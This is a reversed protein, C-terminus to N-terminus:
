ATRPRFWARAPGLAMDTARRADAWAEPEARRLLTTFVAGAVLCGGFVGLLRPLGVVTAGWTALWAGVGAVLAEMGLRALASVAQGTAMGCMRLSLHLGVAAAVSKVGTVALAIGVVGWRSGALIAALYFPVVAATLRLGVGPRGMLNFVVACPSTVSRLATFLVFVRVLPVADFWKPGYLVHVVDPAYVFLLTLLPLSIAGVFRLLRLYAAPLRAPDRNLTSLAPMAVDTAVATVHRNALNATQWAVNYTGLPGTGLTRGILLTDGENAVLNLLSSGDVRLSYGLIERMSGRLRTARPRWGAAFSVWVLRVPEQVVVPLVLSWVGFGRLALALGLTAGLVDSVLERLAIQDYRLQRRLVAEPVAALRRALFPCVLTLIIPALAPKGFFDALWPSAAALILAQAVFLLAGVRFASQARQEWGVARDHIVYAGIGSEGGFALFQMIVLALASLGFDAPSLTRALIAMTAMRLALGVGKRGLM